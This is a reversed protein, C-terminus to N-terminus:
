VSERKGERVRRGGRKGREEGGGGGEGEGKRRLAKASTGRLAFLDSLDQGGYAVEAFAM